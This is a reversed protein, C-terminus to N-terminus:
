NRKEVNRPHYINGKEFMIVNKMFFHRRLMAILSQGSYCVIISDYANICNNPRISTARMRQHLCYKSAHEISFFACMCAKEGFGTIYKIYNTQLIIIRNHLNYIVYM